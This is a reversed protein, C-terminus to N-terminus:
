IERWDGSIYKYVKSEKTASNYELLTDGQQGAPKEETSLCVKSGTLTVTGDVKLAGNDNTKIDELSNDSKKGKLRVGISKVGTLLDALPFTAM